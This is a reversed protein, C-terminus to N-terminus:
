STLVENIMEPDLASTPEDFLMAVRIWRSARPRDRGQQSVASLQGRTTVANQTSGVRAGPAETSRTKAEDRSRGVGPARALASSGVVSM